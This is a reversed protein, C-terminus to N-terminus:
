EETLKNMLAWFLAIFGFIGLTLYVTTANSEWGEHLVGYLNFLMALIFVGFFLWRVTSEKM